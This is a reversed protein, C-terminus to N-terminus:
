NTKKFYTICLVKAADLLRNEMDALTERNVTIENQIRNSYLAVGPLSRVLQCFEHEIVHDTALIVLGIAGRCRLSSDLQYGVNELNIEMRVEATYLLNKNKQGQHLKRHTLFLNSQSNKPTMKVKCLNNDISM